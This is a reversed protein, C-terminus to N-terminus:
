LISLYDAIQEESLEASKNCRDRHAAVINEARDLFDPTLKFKRIGLAFPILHAKQLPNDTTGHGGCVHCTEGIRHRIFRVPMRRLYTQHEYDHLYIRGEFSM